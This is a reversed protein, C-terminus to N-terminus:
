QGFTLVLLENLKCEIGFNLRKGDVYGKSYIFCVLFCVETDFMM